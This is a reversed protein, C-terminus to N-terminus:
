WSPKGLEEGLRMIRAASLPLDNRGQTQECQMVMWVDHMLADLGPAIEAALMFSPGPHNLLSNIFCHYANAAYNQLKLYCFLPGCPKVTWRNGFCGLCAHESMRSCFTRTWTQKQTTLGSQGQM